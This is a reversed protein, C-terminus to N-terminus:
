RRFRRLFKSKYGYIVLLSSASALGLIIAPNEMFFNSFDTFAIKTYISVWGLKPITLVLKGVSRTLLIPEDAANNADGKTVLSSSSIEIVRHIIPVPYGERWYQIIDGVVIKEPATDVTVAIDGVELSPRMSGSAIVSPQFGLLGTSGWVFILGVVGIAIWSLPSSTEARRRDKAESRSIVGLRMLKLPNLTQNVALFGMIPILMTILAKISWSPDPLIPSLWEFGKLIGLYAMSTMPGGLLSLYTALLNQSLGPLFEAGLFEVTEAPAGLSTFRSLSINIFTYFISILAMGMIIKRKPCSKVLYARSFELGLLASLFYIINTILALPTHQYPSRGFGMFLAAFVLVVIQIVAILAAMVTFQNFFLRIKEKFLYFTILALFSWCVSPVIYVMLGSFRFFELFLYIAVALSPIFAKKLSSAEM